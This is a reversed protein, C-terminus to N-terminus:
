KTHYYHVQFLNNWINLERLLLPKTSQQTKLTFMMKDKNHTQLTPQCVMCCVWSKHTHNCPVENFFQAVRMGEPISLTSHDQRAREAKAVLLNLKAEMRCMNVINHCSLTAIKPIIIFYPLLFTKCCSSKNKWRCGVWLANEFMIIIDSVWRTICWFSGQSVLLTSNTCFVVVGQKALIM